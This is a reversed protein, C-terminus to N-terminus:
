DRVEVPIPDEPTDDRKVKNMKDKEVQSFFRKTEKLVVGSLLLVGLLNPIAMLGNFSDAVGWVVELSWVCGFFVGVVYFVRYVIVAIHRAKANNRFLFEWCKEGYYCWGLMTSMAFLVLGITLGYAGIKGPLAFEFAKLSLVAGQYNGSVYVYDGTAPDVTTLIVLATMTCIIFTVIFVEFIGWIGQEVPDKASTAAHAMPASGLGAENSFVGRAIGMQIVTMIAIGCGGGLVAEPNFAGVVISYLAHPIENFQLVLIIISFVIFFIAMAPVVKETVRAISKIGGIIVLGVIVALVIGVISPNLGFTDHLSTAISNGQVLNGTGVCAVAAFISFCVGLFTGLGKHKAGVGNKLYYMPGGTYMGYENTERYKVALVIESYKTMMGFIASMWMWFIAGPGGVGIATAVGVINGTGITSALATTMAQFPSINSGDVAKQEGRIAGGVTRNLVYGLYRFQIFGARFSLYAGTGVMLVLMIPGWVFSNVAANISMFLEM